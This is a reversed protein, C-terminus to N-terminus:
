LRLKFIKRKQAMLMSFFRLTTPLTMPRTGSTNTERKDGPDELDEEPCMRVGSSHIETPGGMSKRAAGRLFTRRTWGILKAM